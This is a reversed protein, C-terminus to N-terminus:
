RKAHKAEEFLKRLTESVREVSRRAAEKASQEHDVTQPRQPSAQEFASRPM